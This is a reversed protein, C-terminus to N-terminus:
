SGAYLFPEGKWWQKADVLVYVLTLLLYALGTTVLVYSLSRFKSSSVHLGGIVEDLNNAHILAASM